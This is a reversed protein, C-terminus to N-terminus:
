HDGLPLEVTFMAGGTPRNAASLHGGHARVIAESLALGLGFGQPQNARASAARFFREFLHPLDEEAIGPGEDAVTICARGERARIAVSVTGGALSFKLANDLLNAIVLRAPARAIRATVEDSPALHLRIRREQAVSDLRWIAEETVANLSVTETDNREQGSDLRALTLLEEVLVTLHKVEDSCSRLTDVYERNERPRRLTIEIDTHLRSLPSRLEHSADATFRRQAEFGQEIRALMDNLTDVLRGIEDNSGPHPLREGLTSQGIRRARRVIDDIASFARGTLLTGAAGVAVILAVGVVFFLIGAAQLVRNVDDLSGAVQVARAPGNGPVLLSVIRIPEEGYGPLTEFIAGGDALRALLEPSAPLQAEGLNRSRALVHGTGDVIQVLRDLRVFSPPEAGGTAEHVHVPRGASDNLMGIEAEALAFLAADLQAHVARSFGWYGGVGAISLVTLIAAFHALALRKRFSLM